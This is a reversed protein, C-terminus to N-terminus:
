HKETKVITGNVSDVYVEQVDGKDTLIVVEWVSKGDETELEVQYPTGPMTDLAVKIAQQMTFTAEKAVKAKNTELQEHEAQEKGLGWAVPSFLLLGSLAIASGVGAKRM